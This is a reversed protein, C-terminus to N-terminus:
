KIKLCFFEIFFNIYLFFLDSKFLLNKKKQKLLLVLVNERVDNKHMGNM